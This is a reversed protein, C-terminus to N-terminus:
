IITRQLLKSAKLFFYFGWASTKQRKRHKMLWTQPELADAEQWRGPPYSNFRGNTQTSRLLYSPWQFDVHLWTKLQRLQPRIYAPATMTSSGYNQQIPPRSSSKGKRWYKRRKQTNQVSKLFQLTWTSAPITTSSKKKRPSNSRNLTWEDTNEMMPGTKRSRTTVRSEM